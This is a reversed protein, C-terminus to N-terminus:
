TWRRWTNDNSQFRDTSGDLLSSCSLLYYSVSGDDLSIQARSLTSLLSVERNICATMATFNLKSLVIALSPTVTLMRSIPINSKFKHFLEHRSIQNLVMLWIKVDVQSWLRKWFTLLPFQRHCQVNSILHILNSMTGASQKRIPLCNSEEPM